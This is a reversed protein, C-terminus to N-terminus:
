NIEIVVKDYCEVYNQYFNVLQHLDTKINCDILAQFSSIIERHENFRDNLQQIISDIFPIFISVRYYEDPTNM